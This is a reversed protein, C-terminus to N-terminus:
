VHARGIEDFEEVQIDIYDQDVPDRKRKREKRLFVVSVLIFVGIFVILYIWSDTNISSM